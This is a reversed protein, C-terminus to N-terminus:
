LCGNKGPSSRRERAKCPWCCCLARLTGQSTPRGRASQLILITQAALSRVSLDTDKELPWLANCINHLKEESQDQLHRAALGIFRTAEERMTAQVDKLYLMSQQLYEEARSRDQLLLCEGIRWTQQMQTLYKLQKQQLFEAAALLAERSVKAVSEVQDNMHFFLPLLVRGVQKKM